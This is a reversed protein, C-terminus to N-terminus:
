ADGGQGESTKLREELWSAHESLALVEESSLSEIPRTM